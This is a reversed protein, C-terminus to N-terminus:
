NPGNFFSLGMCIVTLSRSFTFNFFVGLKSSLLFSSGDGFDRFGSTVTESRCRTVRFGLELTKDDRTM